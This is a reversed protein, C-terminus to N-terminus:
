EATQWVVDNCSWEGANRVAADAIVVDFYVDDFEFSVMGPTAGGGDGGTSGPPSGASRMSVPFEGDSDPSEPSSVWGVRGRYLRAKPSSGELTYSGVTYSM